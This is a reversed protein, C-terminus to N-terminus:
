RRTPRRGVEARLKQFTRAETRLAALVADRGNGDTRALAALRKAVGVLAAMVSGKEPSWTRGTAVNPGNSFHYSVGDLGRDSDGPDPIRLDALAASWVKRLLDATERDILVELYETAIAELRPGGKPYREAMSLERGTSDFAGIKGSRELEYHRVSWVSDKAREFFALTGKETTRLGTAWETEFSPLCLMRISVEPLFSRELVRRVMADYQSDSQEREPVLHRGSTGDPLDIRPITESEAQQKAAAVPSGRGSRDSACAASVAFMVSVAWMSFSM